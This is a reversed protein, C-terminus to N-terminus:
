DTGGKLWTKVLQAAIEPNMDSFEGIQEKLEMERTKRIQDLPINLVDDDALPETAVMTLAAAAELEQEALLAAALKKKKMRKVLLFVVVAIVLLLGLAAILIWMLLPNDWLMDMLTPRPAPERYFSASLVSVKQDAERADIGIAAAVALRLEERETRSMADGGDLVVAATLNIIDGGDDQIQEKMYSVLFQFARDDAYYVEDGEITVNPYIPIVANTETGPVGAINPTAGVAEIGIHASEMVGRGDDERWPYYEVIERLKKKIDINAKVSTRIREEGYIPGLLQILKAQLNREMDTELAMKLRATGATLMGDDIVEATVFTGNGDVVVVDDMEMGPVAASVLKQIGEVQAPRPSGGDRMIVTVGASPTQRDRTLVYNNNSGVSITVIADQVGNFARITAAIRDQLDFLRYTEKDYDTSMAGVNATFVDYSLGSRPHGQMVLQARLTDEQAVPVYITGGSYTYSVGLAELKGTIETAEQPPLDSFLVSMDGRNGVMLTMIVVVVIAAALGAIILLKIKRDLKQNTERLKTLIQSLREQM